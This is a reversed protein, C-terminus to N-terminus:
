YYSRGAVSRLTSQCYSIYFNAGAGNKKGIVEIMLHDVLAGYPTSVQAIKNKCVYFTDFVNIEIKYMVFLPSVIIMQTM